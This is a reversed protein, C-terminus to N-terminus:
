GKSKPLKVITLWFDEITNVIHSFQDIGMPKTVYSNAGLKYSKIVDSDQDSTTMVIIPIHKLYPNSKIDDLVDLGSKLPLNLDLIVLDPENKGAFENEKKLYSIADAGDNVTELDIKIKSSSLTEKILEIDGPDDEVLLIEVPRISM